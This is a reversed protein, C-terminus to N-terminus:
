YGNQIQLQMGGTQEIRLPVGVARGNGTQILQNNDGHQWVDLQTNSYRSQWRAVNHNGQQAFTYRSNEGTLTLELVNATGQQLLSVTTGQGTVRDQPQSLQGMQVRIVEGALLGSLAQGAGPQRVYADSQALAVIPHAILLLFFLRKM